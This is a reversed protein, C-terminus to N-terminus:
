YSIGRVMGTRLLLVRSWLHINIVYWGVLTTSFWCLDLIIGTRKEKRRFFLPKEEKREVVKNHLKPACSDIKKELFQISSFVMKFIAKIHDSSTVKHKSRQGYLFYKINDFSGDPIQSEAEKSCWFNNTKKQTFSSFLKPSEGKM